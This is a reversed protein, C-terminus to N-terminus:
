FPSAEETTEEGPLPPLDQPGSIGFHEFFKMTTRYLRPKGPTDATGVNDILGRGELTAILRDSNVGRISEVDARTCPQRYAIITLTELAARSLRGGATGGLLATVYPAYAPATVLQYRQGDEQLRLGRAEYDAALQKLAKRATAEGVGAARALASLPQPEESVFLLAELVWPLENRAPAKVTEESM